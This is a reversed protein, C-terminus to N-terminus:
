CCGKERLSFCYPSGVLLLRSVSLDTEVKGANGSPSNAGNDFCELSPLNCTCVPNSPHMSNLEMLDQMWFIQTTEKTLSVKRTEKDKLQVLVLM